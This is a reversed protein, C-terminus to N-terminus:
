QTGQPLADIPLVVVNDYWAPVRHTRFGVAGSLIPSPDTFDIRLGREKDASPHMRDFWVRIRPGEAAIRIQNWVGPVVKCDLESLDFTALPQWNNEIKGLYLTETDFGVYYGRMQDNGPGPETTRFILGANSTDGKLMVVAELVYDTWAEDGAILKATPELDFVGIFGNSSGGFKKWGPPVVSSPVQLDQFDDFLMARSEGTTHRRVAEAEALYVPTADPWMLGCWPVTPEPTGEPTGWYWRCNSNGVMLEWCLYVGPVYKGAAKRDQLWHIVEVPEGNSPRPAYWRAGAETFVAGKKSNMDAQNDWVKQSNGYNHANVIDTEPSDDWCCIVPQTPDIDNAWAYGLTRLTRSYELRMNPENFIEWWLVRPDNHHPRIVDQIYAKFKPLNEETRERDQPCAAWRGNHYGKVPETPEELFIGEHRHCDDFFTFGPRIGHRNCIVLFQEIRDLFTEKEADYPINHLYVRLTTIGFYKKAAALENDIVEPRYDHWFQVQNVAYAPTYNTGVWRATEHPTAGCLIGGGLISFVTVVAISSSILRRM